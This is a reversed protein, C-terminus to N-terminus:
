RLVAVPHQGGTARDTLPKEVAPQLPPASRPDAADSLPCSAQHQEPEQTHQSRELGNVNGPRSGPAEAM